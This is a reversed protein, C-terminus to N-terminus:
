ALTFAYSPNGAADRRFPLWVLTLTGIDTDTKRPAIQVAAISPAVVPSAHLAALKANAEAQLAAWKEHLAARQEEVREVDGLEKKARGASRVASAGRRVNTASVVSRGMIAGLLAGGISAATDVQQASAQARQEALKGEIANLKAQLQEFKPDYKARLAQVAEDRAERALQEVRARFELPSETPLALLGLEACSSLELKEHQYLHTVFSKKWAALQKQTPSRKPLPLFAAGPLPEHTADRLLAPDVETVGAFDLDLTQELLPVLLALTRWSDVKAKADVFHLKVTVGVAPQYSLPGPGESQVFLEPLGEPAAPRLSASPAQAAPMELTKAVGTAAGGAAAKKADM